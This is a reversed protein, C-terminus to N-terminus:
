ITVRRRASIFVASTCWLLGFLAAALSLVWAFFAEWGGDFSLDVTCLGTCRPDVVMLGLGDSRVPREEGRVTAHWGKVYSIQLSLLEGTAFRGTATGTHWNAWSLEIGPKLAAAFRASQPAAETYGSGESVLDEARVAHALSNSPSPVEYIVDDGDRWLQRLDAFRDLRQFPHYHERSNPGGVMVARVGYSQLLALALKSGGDGMGSYLQYHVGALLPNTIGQDFGGMLQPTDTFANMWFSVSGPTLVRQGRLNQRMWQSAQYEVTTSMDISQTLEWAQRRLKRGSYLCFVLGVLILAARVRKGARLWCWSFGCGFLVAIAMEMELHYREPQPLLYIQAYEGLLPLSGMTAAFLAGFKASVSWGRMLRVLGWFLLAAVTLYVLHMPGITYLGGIRQANTRVAALTSPPIWPSALAYAYVGTLGICLRDGWGIPKAFLYALVAAALGFAGLWNTLVVCVMALASGVWYWPKRKELALDLLLIPLPLLAMSAIHPGEGYKLLAHLRRPGWVTVMDGRVSALLLASTSFVSYFLTCSLAAAGNRSLRLVLWYLSVPGLCYFLATVAHYALAASVDFMSGAIAVLNHLLPPYTNQFPIGGYWIPWWVREHWHSQMTNSLAIFAAEISGLHKTYETSFLERILTANALFIALSTWRTM